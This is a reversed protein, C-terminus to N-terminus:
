TTCCLGNWQCLLKRMGKGLAQLVAGWILLFIGCWLGFMLPKYQVQLNIADKDNCNSITIYIDGVLRHMIDVERTETKESLYYRIEPKLKGLEELLKNHKLNISLIAQKAVYNDKKVLKIQELIIQYNNVMVREGVVLHTEKTISGIYSSTISIAVIVLGLHSISMRINTFPKSILVLAAILTLAALLPVITAIFYDMEVSIPRASFYEYVVPYLTGFLILLCAVYVLAVVSLCRVSVGDGSVHLRTSLLIVVTTLAVILLFGLMYGARGPEYAFSHVSTLLGSRVLSFGLVALLFAILVPTVGILSYKKLKLLHWALTLCLWPMLGTNEVPDWFWFGGWGLERYAWWSGMAMGLTFFVWSILLYRELIAFHREKGDSILIAVALSYCLCLGAYGM